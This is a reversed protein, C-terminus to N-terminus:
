AEVAEADAKVGLIMDAAKQAQAAAVVVLKVDAKIAKRWGDLYAASNDITASDIGARQCLFASTMEAVLEEQGYQDTGFSGLEVIGKRALRNVHGTAHGLEHFATAYYNEPCDFQGMEPMTVRDLAPSYYARNSIQNVLEPGIPAAFGALISECEDIRVFESLQARDGNSYFEDALGDIQSANFVTSYRLFFCKRPKDSSEESEPVFEGAYVIPCGKEGKRVQGGLEQAQKYSLWHPSTYGCSFAIVSTLFQNCGRYDRGSVGNRQSDIAIKSWPLRWPCVGKEIMALIRDTVVEYAKSM